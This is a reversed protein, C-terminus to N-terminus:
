SFAYINVCVEGRKLDDKKMFNFAKEHPPEVFKRESINDVKPPEIIDGMVADKKREEPVPPTATKGKKLEQMELRIAKLEEELRETPTRMTAKKVRGSEIRQNVIKVDEPFKIEKDNIDWVDKCIAICAGQAKYGNDDLINNLEQEGTYKATITRNKLKGNADYNPEKGMVLMIEYVKGKRVKKESM